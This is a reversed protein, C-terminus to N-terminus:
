SGSGFIDDKLECYVGMEPQILPALIDRLFEGHNSKSEPPNLIRKLENYIEGAASKVDNKDKGREVNNELADQKARLVAEEQDQGKLPVCLASLVEDDLLYSEIQRRRLVRVGERKLREIEEDTRLDRDILRVIRTGKVLKEVIYGISLRDTLIDRDNGVSVFETEPFDEAFIKRYCQADFETNPTDRRGLPRGECLVVCEPVVLGALDDLAVQLSERWLRRSPTSPSIRLRQDFDKDHFDLFVVEDQNQRCLEWAKSIIGISHTAIWLQCDHPLLNYIEQLLCGQLKTHM